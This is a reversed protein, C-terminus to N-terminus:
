LPNEDMVEYPNKPALGYKQRIVDMRKRRELKRAENAERRDSRDQEFKAEEMQIRAINSSKNYCCSRTMKCWCCVAMSLFMVFLFFFAAAAGNAPVTCNGVYLTKSTCHASSSIQEYNLCQQDTECWFCINSFDDGKHRPVCTNCNKFQSCNHNNAPKQAQGKGPGQNQGQGQGQGQPAM